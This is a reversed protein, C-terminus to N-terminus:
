NESKFFIYYAGPFIYLTQMKIHKTTATYRRLEGMDKLTAESASPCDDRSGWHWHLLGSSYPHICSASEYLASLAAVFGIFCVTHIDILHITCTPYDMCLRHKGVRSLRILQHSMSCTYRAWNSFPLKRQYVFADTWFGLHIGFDPDYCHRWTLTLTDCKLMLLEFRQCSPLLENMSGVVVIDLSRMVAGITLPICWPTLVLSQHPWARRARWCIGSRSPPCLGLFKKM